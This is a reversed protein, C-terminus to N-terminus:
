QNEEQYKIAEKVLKFDGYRGESLRVLGVEKLDKNIKDEIEIIESEDVTIKLSDNEFVKPFKPEEKKVRRYYKIISNPKAEVYYEQNTEVEQVEEFEEGNITINTM